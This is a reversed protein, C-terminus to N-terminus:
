QTSAKLPTTMRIDRSASIRPAASYALVGGTSVGPVATTAMPPLESML